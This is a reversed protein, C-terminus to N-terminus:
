PFRSPATPSARRPQRSPRGPRTPSRTPRRAARHRREGRRAHLGADGFTGADLDALAQTYTGTFDWLVSSLLVGQEDISTKDGIVDIFWVKEAGEPPTASEIARCCASPRAMAWASSSTRAARSSPRPSTTKGGEADGYGASASRPRCSRSTRTSPSPARWSAVPRSTGTPTTRPSSSASRTPRRDDDGRARRRPLRGRRSDTAVDAVLGPRPRRRSISSSSRSARQGQRVAGRDRTTASPRPSSSSRAMRRSRNLIPAPDDYGSNDAQILVAGGHQRGRGPRGVLGQQNWGYDTAAEPSIYAITTIDTQAAAPLAAVALLAAAGLGASWARIRSRTHGHSM